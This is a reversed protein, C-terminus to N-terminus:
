LDDHSSILHAIRDQHRRFFRSCVQYFRVHNALYDRIRRGDRLLEIDDLTLDNLHQWGARANIVADIGLARHRAVTCGINLPYKM